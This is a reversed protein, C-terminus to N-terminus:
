NNYDFEDVDYDFHNKIFSEIEERIEIRRESSANEYEEIEDDTLYSQYGQDESQINLILHEAINGDIYGNSQADKVYQKTFQLTSNKM